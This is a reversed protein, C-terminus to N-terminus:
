VPNCSRPIYKNSIHDNCHVILEPSFIEKEVDLLLTVGLKGVFDVMKEHDKCMKKHICDDCECIIKMYIM